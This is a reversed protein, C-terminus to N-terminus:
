DFKKKACLILNNLEIDRNLKCLHSFWKM